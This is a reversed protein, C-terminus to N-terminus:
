WTTDLVVKNCDPCVIVVDDMDAIDKGYYGGYVKEVTGGPGVDFYCNWTLLRFSKANGCQQCKLPKDDEGLMANIDERLKKEDDRSTTSVNLMGDYTIRGIVCAHVIMPGGASGMNPGNLALVVDVARSTKEVPGQGAEVDKLVIYATGDGPFTKPVVSAHKFYGDQFWGPFLDGPRVCNSEKSDLSAVYEDISKMGLVEIVRATVDDGFVKVTGPVPNKVFSIFHIFPFDLFSAFERDCAACRKRGTERTANRSIISLMEDAIQHSPARKSMLGDVASIIKDRVRPDIGQKPRVDM